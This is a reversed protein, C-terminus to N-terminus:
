GNDKIDEYFAATSAMMYPWLWLLGIGLTFACLIGWGIFRLYLCFLRWKNGNMIQRSRTIAELAGVSPDDAVIFFAMSYSYTKIIGPVVLLLSWFMIFLGTLFIVGFSKGFVNFGDFLMSIRVSGSSLNLFFSCLGVTLAGTFLWSTYSLSTGGLLLQFLLFLGIAVGWNGSLSVRAAATIERLPTESKM